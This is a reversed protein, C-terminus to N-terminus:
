DFDSDMNEVMQDLTIPLTNGASLFGTASSCEHDIDRFRDVLIANVQELQDKQRLLRERKLRMSEDEALYRDICSEQKTPLQRRHDNIDPCTDFVCAARLRLAINDLLRKVLLKWYAYISLVM